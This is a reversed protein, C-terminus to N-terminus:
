APVDDTIIVENYGRSPFIGVEGNTLVVKWEAEYVGPAATDAANWNYRVLGATADVVSVAGALSVAAGTTKHRLHFSVTAASLDQVSGDSYGLVSEAAPLTAGKKLYLVRGSM